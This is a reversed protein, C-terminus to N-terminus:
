PPGAPDTLPPVASEGPPEDGLARLVTLAVLRFQVTWARVRAALQVEEETLRGSELGKRAIESLRSSAVLVDRAAARLTPRPRIESAPRFRGPTRVV